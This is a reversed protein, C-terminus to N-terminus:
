EYIKAACLIRAFTSWSPITADADGSNKAYMDISRIWAEMAALFRELDPNEWEDPNLILGERLKAVFNALDEKTQIDRFKPFSMYGESVFGRLV